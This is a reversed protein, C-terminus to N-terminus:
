EELDEMEDPSTLFILIHGKYQGNGDNWDSILNELVSLSGEIYGGEEFM